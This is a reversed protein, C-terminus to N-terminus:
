HSRDAQSEKLDDDDEESDSVIYPGWEPRMIAYRNSQRLGTSSANMPNMSLRPRAAGFPL